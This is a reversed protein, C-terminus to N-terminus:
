CSSDPINERGNQAEMISEHKIEDTKLGKRDKLASQIRTKLETLDASKIVFNDAAMSRMDYKYSSIASCLIVPMDCYRNRIDQLLDLSCHRDLWADMLVLDPRCREIMMVLQSRNDIPIVDYGLDKLEISYLERISKFDDAILIKIMNGRLRFCDKEWVDHEEM